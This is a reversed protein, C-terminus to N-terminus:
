PPDVLQIEPEDMLLRRLLLDLERLAADADHRRWGMRWWPPRECAAHCHWLVADGRVRAPPTQAEDMLTGGCGVWLCCPKRAVVICWGWPAPYLRAGRHGAAVLGDRLWHALVRGYIGPGTDLAEDPLVPFRTGRFWYCTPAYGEM